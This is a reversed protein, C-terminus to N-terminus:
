NGQLIKKIQEVQLTAAKDPNVQTLASLQKKQQEAAAKDAASKPALKGPLAEAQATTMAIWTAPVQYTVHRHKLEHDNGAIGFLFKFGNSKYVFRTTQTVQYAKNGSIDTRSSSTKLDPKSVTTKKDTASKRYIYVNEKGDTGVNQYLLVGFGQDGAGASHIVKKSTTTVKEMGYHDHMNGVLATVSLILGAFMLLTVTYRVGSSKITMNAFFALIAFAAMILIIM